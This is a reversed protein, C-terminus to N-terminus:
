FLLIVLSYLTLAGQYVIFKVLLSSSAVGLPVGCKVMHVAQMPQGGSASPTVCNFFQGIMSTHFTSGFRQLPYLKKVAAHLIVAELLWYVAMMALSATLWLPSVTTLVQLVNSLGDVLSIYVFLVVLSLVIIVANLKKWKM